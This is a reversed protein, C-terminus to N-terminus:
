GAYAIGVATRATFTSRTSREKNPLWTHNGLNVVFLPQKHRFDSMIFVLNISNSVAFLLCIGFLLCVGLLLCIDFLTGIVM